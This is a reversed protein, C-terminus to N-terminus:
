LRLSPSVHPPAHQLPGSRVILHLQDGVRFEIDGTLLDPEHGDARAVLCQM